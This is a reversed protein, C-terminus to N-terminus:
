LTSELLAIIETYNRARAYDLPSRRRKEHQLGYDTEYYHDCEDLAHLDIEYKKANKVMWEVVKIQNRGVAAHLPTNKWGLFTKM